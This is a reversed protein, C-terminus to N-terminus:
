GKKRTCSGGYTYQDSDRWGVPPVWRRHFLRVDGSTTNLVLSSVSRVKSAADTADHLYVWEVANSRAKDRVIARASLEPVAPNPALKYGDRQTYTTLTFTITQTGAEGVRQGDRYRFSEGQAQCAWQTAGRLRECGSLLLVAALALAVVLTPREIPRGMACHTNAPVASANISNDRGLVKLM